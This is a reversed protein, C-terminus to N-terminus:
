FFWDLGLLIMSTNVGQNPRDIGANSLHLWRGELTAAMNPKFFWHLGIGVQVNFEFDTSLDPKRIDTLSLGAGGDVYPVLRSGTAFNYRLLPAIGVLYADNHNIQEGGFFTGLLEFNGRWFCDGGILGSIMTGIHADALVINHDKRGGFMRLGFGGGINVGTEIAHKRFGDGIESIWVPERGSDLNFKPQSSVPEAASAVFTALFLILVFAV